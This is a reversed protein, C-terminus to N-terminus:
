NNLNFLLSLFTTNGDANAVKAAMEEGFVEAIEAKHTENIFGKVKATENAAKM